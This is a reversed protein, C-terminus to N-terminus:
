HFLNISIKYYILYSNAGFDHIIAASNLSYDLYEEFKEPDIEEGDDWEMYALKTGFEEIDFVHDEKVEQEIFERLTM